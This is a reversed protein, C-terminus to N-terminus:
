SFRLVTEWYNVGDRDAYAEVFYKGPALRVQFRGDEGSRAKVVLSGPYVTGDQRLVATSARIEAHLPLGCPTLPYDPHVVIGQVGGVGRTVLLVSGAVIALVLVGGAFNRIIRV